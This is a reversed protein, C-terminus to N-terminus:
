SESSTLMESSIVPCFIKEMTWFTPTTVEMKENAEGGNAEGSASSIPPNAESEKAAAAAAKEANEKALERAAAEAEERKKEAEAAEELLRKKEAEEKEKIEQVAKLADENLVITSGLDDDGDSIEEDEEPQQQKTKEKNDGPNPSSSSSSSAAGGNTASSTSTSSCTDLFERGFFSDQIYEPYQSLIKNKKPRWGARKKPKGDETVDDKDPDKGKKNSSRSKALFGGIGVKKLDRYRKKRLIMVGNEKVIVTFGDPASPTSGDALPKIVDGDKHNTAGGGPGGPTPPPMLDDDM